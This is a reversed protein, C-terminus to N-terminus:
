KGRGGCWFYVGTAHGPLKGPKESLKDMLHVQKDDRHKSTTQENQCKMTHDVRFYENMRNNSSM